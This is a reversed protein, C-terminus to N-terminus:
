SAAEPVSARTRRLDLAESPPMAYREGCCERGTSEARLLAFKQTGNCPDLIVAVPFMAKEVRLLLRNTRILEFRFMSQFSRMAAQM